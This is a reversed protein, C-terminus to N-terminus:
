SWMVIIRTGATYNVAQVRLGNVCKVGKYSINSIYNPIVSSGSHLPAQDLIRTGTTGSAASDSVYLTCGSVGRNISGRFGHYWVPGAHIVKAGGTVESFQSM